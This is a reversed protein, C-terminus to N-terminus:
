ILIPKFLYVLNSCSKKEKKLYVFDHRLDKENREEEGFQCLQPIKGIIM